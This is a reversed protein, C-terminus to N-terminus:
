ELGFLRSWWSSRRPLRQSATLDRRSDSHSTLEQETPSERDGSQEPPQPADPVTAPILRQANQLLVHLEQVERAHDRQMSEIMRTLRANQERLFRMDDNIEHSLDAPQEDPLESPEDPLERTVQEQEIGILVKGTDRRSPLSGRQARQRVAHETIGLYRAAAPVSVYEM